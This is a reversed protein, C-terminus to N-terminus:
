AIQPRGHGTMSEPLGNQFWPHGSLRNAEEILPKEEATAFRRDWELVRPVMIRNFLPPVAAIVIMTLYGAPLMPTDPYAKLQWFPKEGQAHHHSHRTLNYLLYSSVRKNCNWSHRPEVPAGPVRVLGYHEVFNVFELYGKGYIATAIWILAGQWGAAWAFFAVYCLTMLNGRHMRNRWSWASIGLKALRETELKWAHLYSQVTSRVVFSWANEGRRATAPDQRTAVNKHHGYVHEIAFSADGTLALMWRGVVMAPKSWTRHTLEHAVVTGAGGYIMGIGLVAGLIDFWTNNARAAVMDLGVLNQMMAGFGFLDRDSLQWAFLFSIMLLLPLTAYLSLNLLWPHAYTPESDDDGFVADGGTVFIFGVIFTLWLSHGGLSTGWAALLLLITISFFRLYKWINWLM